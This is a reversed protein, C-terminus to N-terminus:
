VQARGIEALYVGLKRRPASWEILAFFVLVSPFDTILPLWYSSQDFVVIKALYIKLLMLISFFVFPKSLWGGIRERM